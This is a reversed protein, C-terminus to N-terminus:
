LRWSAARLWRVVCTRSAPRRHGYAADHVMYSIAMPWVQRGAWNPNFPLAQSAQQKPLRV